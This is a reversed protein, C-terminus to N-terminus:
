QGGQTRGGGGGFGGFGQGSLGVLGEPVESIAVAEIVGGEGPQGRVSVTMGVELDALSGTTLIVTESGVAAELTGQQTTISVKNGEIKDITGAVARRGGGVGGAGGQRGGRGGFRERLQSIADQQEQSLEGQGFRGVAPGGAGDGSAQASSSLPPPTGILPPEEDQSKGLAVGGIFSGGLAAGIVVAVAILIVFSRM